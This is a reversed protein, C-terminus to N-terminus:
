AARTIASDKCIAAVILGLIMLQIGGAFMWKVALM